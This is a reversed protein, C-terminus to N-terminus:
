EAAERLRLAEHLRHPLVPVRTVRVGTAHRIAGLIAPATAVLAPEGVGKAGFPGEPEPDEILKVVIEPMDGVTPILYDHLNETRGPIYEEMLALGLGQAIGGHIQGEVLTPNVARGVDHAAVIRGVKVTALVTDVEVEAVQAAFGYTAYPIGQGRPDLATTPPDYRGEGALVAGTEDPVLAALDVIRSADGDEICLRPGDLGLRAGPGANALALIRRRLDEGALRAANGSVFTQRSASTKGADDTLDTDGVVSRFLHAPLGLADAAIQLLVTTSGQGIDVAGNFFTLEGAASLAIRMRSPNPMSTNGCGYWMCAIGVGRKFRPNRANFAKAQAAQGFFDDRVADLCEPLGASAHLVQGSTTTDGRGLANIRRITWRDLGLAEALDDILAEGAIAAQPVGFGRFAGATPDNTHVARTRNRVHPVKYPGSAHVPVRNAVTPGWSAYAGTNFDADMEFATFRGEADASMRARISAPHRKTSSVMSETRSYVARVPRRTLWAAVALVPQVSVDLKGGFGGGCASPIIRVAQLPLGLVRAVEEQDMVPAQTCATVEIRDALRVAFGAEPEIYAHEVFATEFAGSATAAWLAHGQAVAGRDLYGRTLVNDPIGAHIAPAGETLAAAVGSLASLVEYAVPLDRDPFAEVAERTGVLAAVPDGRMRVMGEALVPQDKTAPFVGFANAGPIDRATLIRVLGPHRALAPTLDGITFRASAHPSRVLRLWLADPPQHDAGFRDTGEVKPWGDVRAIRAGIAEGARAVVPVFANAGRAVDMMAEVIKVYGTCRCLVGGLADEIARRDARPDRTLADAAAMIMGPTCAGCQAAGHALFAARLRDLLASSGEITTVARGEAQATAVLCACVQEGDLLVTCAGCDGAECGIKTGTLHLRERLTDALSAFPPAQVTRSEGNVLLTFTGFTV